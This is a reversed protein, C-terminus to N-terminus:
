KAESPKAPKEKTNSILQKTRKDWRVVRQQLRHAGHCDTCVVTLYDMKQPCREQWRALVKKAPADHTEHCNSQCAADIKELPYLVDPPTINDEDDRHAHSEGHCKVCGIKEKAHLVVLPEESFNEHCVFCARNIASRDETKKGPEELLLLPKSRDVKLPPLPPPKEAPLSSEAAHSGSVGWARPYRLGGWLAVILVLGVVARRVVHQQGMPIM